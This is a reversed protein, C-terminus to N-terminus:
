GHGAVQAFVAVMREVMLSEGFRERAVAAARAGLGRRVPPDDLLWELAARLAQADQPRVL